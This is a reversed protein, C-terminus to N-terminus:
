SADDAWQWRQNNRNTSVKRINLHIFFRPYGTQMTDIVRAEGEEYGVNDAWKPLSVSIAHETFAPIPNGLPNQSTAMAHLINNKPSQLSPTTDDTSYPVSYSSIINEVTIKFIHSSESLYSRWPSLLM